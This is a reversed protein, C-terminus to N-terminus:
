KGRGQTKLRHCTTCLVVLNSLENFFRFESEHKAQSLPIRHDVELAQGSRGCKECYGRSRELARKRNAQYQKTRYGARWPQRRQREGEDTNAYPDHEPCYGKNGRRGCVYCGIPQAYRQGSHAPCRSEGTDVRKGCVLCPRPFATM